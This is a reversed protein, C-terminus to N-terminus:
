IQPYFGAKEFGTVIKNTSKNRPLPTGIILLTVLFECKGVSLPYTLKISIVM